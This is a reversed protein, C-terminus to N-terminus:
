FRFSLGAYIEFDPAERTLGINGGLDLQLSKSLSYAIAADASAQEVTGAPDLNLNTWLEGVITLRPSVPLSLNILNVLAVHRGSGDADALLDLEPGLTMTVPGAVAFSIPVAIGGEVEGNGLGEAASPLKVFPVIALQVPANARTLRHKYRVVLDGFGSARSSSGGARSTLEAFPTLGIQLDSRDSLGVKAFSSAVTFLETRGGNGRTLTWGVAGTEVQVVGTPVTCVANAKTPRDTCIPAEDRAQAPVAISLGLLFAPVRRM